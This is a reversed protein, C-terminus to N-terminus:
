EKQDSSQTFLSIAITVLLALFFGPILEYILDGLAPFIKWIIVTGAGTVLGCAVGIKTTKKWFLALISTPGIAAGLGAWASLVRDFVSERILLCLLLAIVVLASVTARSLLVMKKQPIEEGKKIIRQYVDRVISSASVLLQSDATSMIASFISALLFGFFIPHGLFQGLEPYIKEEDNNQLAEIEPFYSRGVIGVLLAGGALLVNWTTGVFATWKFQKPDKISMYRILIHPNGPSGLGLGIAGIFTLTSLNFPSLYNGEIKSLETSVEAWGGQHIIGYIPLVVLGLILFLGQLVDTLSVAMFGGLVTYILVMGATIFVGIVFDIGFSSAFTKGGAIFQGSIYGVMFLLFIFVILGRLRGTKDRFRAAYYDPLTICNHKETFDRLKPAYYLFLFFEVITYGVAYWLADFGMMYATGAFGIVLWASRGSVVASLAVVFRSMSRGGIFYESIGQSSFRSSYIGLGIILLFYFIFAGFAQYSLNGITLLQIM